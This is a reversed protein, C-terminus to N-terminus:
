WSMIIKGQLLYPFQEIQAINLSYYYDGLVLKEGAIECALHKVLPMHIKVLYGFQWSENVPTYSAKGGLTFTFGHHFTYGLSESFEWVNNNLSDHPTTRFWNIALTNTFSNKWRTMNSLSFNQFVTTSSDTTLKYYNYSLNTVTTLGHIIPAFSISASSINNNNNINYVPDMYNYYHEVVPSYGLKLTLSRFIKYSANAGFTQLITQDNLLRLFDDDDKRYFVSVKIKKTLTQEAKAEYRFNDARLYTMGFSSFFPDVYRGSFTLITKTKILNWKYKGSLAKSQPSQLIGGDTVEYGSYNTEVSSKGYTLNFSMNKTMAWKGDVEIVQNKSLGSPVSNEPGTVYSPLGTGYLYGIFLHTGDKKGVGGKIAAIRRGGEVSNFDFMNYLNQTNVLKNQLTNNTFLLTNVTVGESGALYIGNKEYEMNIGKIATGNVLFSNYDPYCLGIELKKMGGMVNYLNSLYPNNLTPNKETNNVTNIVKNLKAIDKDYQAIENQYQSVLNKLSDGGIYKTVTQAPSSTNGTTPLTKPLGTSDQKGTPNGLSDKGATKLAGEGVGLVNGSPGGPVAPVNPVQVNGGKGLSTLFLLKQEAIQRLKMLQSIANKASNEQQDVKDIYQQRFKEYDFSVRYFNTIGSINQVDAYNFNGNFPLAGLNFQSQGAAHFYGMPVQMNEAFPIVGYDYGASVNGHLTTRDMKDIFKQFATKGATDAPAANATKAPAVKHTSDASTPKASPKVLSNASKVAPNNM